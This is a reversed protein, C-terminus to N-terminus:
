QRVGGASAEEVRRLAERREFLDRRRERVEVARPERVAIELRRVHQEGLAEPAIWPAGAEHLQHVEPDRGERAVRARQRRDARHDAREGVHSGLEDIRCCPSPGVPRRAIQEREAYHRPLDQKARM